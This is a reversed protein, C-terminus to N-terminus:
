HFIRVLCLLGGVAVLVGRGPSRAYRDGPGRARQIIRAVWSTLPPAAVRFAPRARFMGRALRTKNETSM